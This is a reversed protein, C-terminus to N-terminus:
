NVVDSDAVFTVSSPLKQDATDADEIGNLNLKVTVVVTEAPALSYANDAGVLTDGSPRVFDLVWNGEDDAFPPPDANGPSNGGEFPPPDANGPSSDGATATEYDMYFGVDQTGNNTVEFLDTLTTTADLVIGDEQGIVFTFTTTGGDPLEIYPSDDDPDIALLAGEDGATSLAVGRNAEVTDFAGTGAVVGAGAALAAIGILTDRRSGVM